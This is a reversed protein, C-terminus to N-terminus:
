AMTAKPPEPPVQARTPKQPASLTGQPDRLKDQLGANGQSPEAPGRHQGPTGQAAMPTCRPAESPPESLAGRSASLISHTSRTPWQPAQLPARPRGPHAMLTAKMVAECWAGFSRFLSSPALCVLPVLADRMMAEYRVNGGGGRVEGSTTEYKVKTDNSKKKKKKKNGESKKNSRGVRDM